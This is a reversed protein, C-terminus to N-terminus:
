APIDLAQPDLAAPTVQWPLSLAVVFGGSAPTSIRLHNRGPYLHELRARTNALGVGEQTAGHVAPAGRGNDTVTLELRDGARRASVRIVGGGRGAFGHKVANEVLPQLVLVPVLACDAAPPVDIECTLTGGFRVRQIELYHQLLDLERGLPVEQQAQSRFVARLLDGLRVLMSEARSPDRHLLNAIANLTNFVFHPHLQRQLSELRAEVLRAELRAEHLERRRLERSARIAHNAALVGWYLLVEWEFAYLLHWTFLSPFSLIRDAHDPQGSVRLVWLKLGAGVACHLAAMVISAAAHFGLPVVKRASSIPMRSALQWIIPILVLWSTWALINYLVVWVYQGIPELVIRPNLWAQLIYSLTGSAVGVIPGLALLRWFRVPFEDSEPAPPDPQIM